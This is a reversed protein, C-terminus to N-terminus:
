LESRACCIRLTSGSRITSTRSTSGTQPPETNHFGTPNHGQDIFIKIAM